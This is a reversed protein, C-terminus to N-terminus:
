NQQKQKIGSNLKLIGAIFIGIAGISIRNGFAFLIIGFVFGTIILIIGTRVNRVGKAHLENMLSNGESNEIHHEEILRENIERDTLGEEKLQSMYNFLTDKKVQEESAYEIIDIGKKKIEYKINDLSEGRELRKDLQKDFAESSGSEHQDNLFNLHESVTEAEDYMGSKELEEKLPVLDDITMDAIDPLLKILDGTPITSYKYKLEESQM